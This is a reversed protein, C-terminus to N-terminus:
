VYYNGMEKKWRNNESSRTYKKGSGVIRRRYRGDCGGADIFARRAAARRIALIQKKTIKM